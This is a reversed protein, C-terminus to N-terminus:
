AVHYVMDAHATLDFLTDVLNWQKCYICAYLGDGPCYQTDSETNFWIEPVFTLEPRLLIM